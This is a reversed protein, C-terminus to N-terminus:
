LEELGPWGSEGDGVLVRAAEAHGEGRFWPPDRLPFALCVGHSRCCRGRRMSYWPGRWGVSAVRVRSCRAWACGRRSRRCRGPRGWGARGPWCGSCVPSIGVRRTSSRASGVLLDISPCLRDELLELAPRRTRPRGGSLRALGTRRSRAAQNQHSDSRVSARFLPHWSM